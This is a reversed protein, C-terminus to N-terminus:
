KPSGKIQHDDTKAIQAYDMGQCVGKKRADLFQMADLSIFLEIHTAVLGSWGTQRSVGIGAGNDGHFYENVLIHDRWHPDTQFKNGDESCRGIGKRM